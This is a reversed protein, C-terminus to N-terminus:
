SIIIFVRENASDSSSLRASLLFFFVHNYLSPNTFLYHTVESVNRSRETTHHLLFFFQASRQYHSAIISTFTYRHRQRNGPPLSDLTGGVCLWWCMTWFGNQLWVGNCGRGRIDFTWSSACEDWSAESFYRRDLAKGTELFIVVRQLLSAHSSGRSVILPHAASHNTTTGTLSPPM